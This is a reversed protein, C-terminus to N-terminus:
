KYNIDKDAEVSEMQYVESNEINEKNGQMKIVSNYRQIITYKM